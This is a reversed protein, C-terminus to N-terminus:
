FNQDSPTFTAKTPLVLLLVTPLFITGWQEALFKTGSSTKECFMPHNIKLEFDKLNWEEAADKHGRILVFNKQPRTKSRTWVM